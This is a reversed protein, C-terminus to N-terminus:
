HSSYGLHSSMMHVLNLRLTIQFPWCSVMSWQRCFGLTQQHLLLNSSPYPHGFWSMASSWSTFSQPDSVHASICALKNPGVHYGCDSIPSKPHCSECINMITSICNCRIKREIEFNRWLYREMRENQLMNRTNSREYKQYQIM